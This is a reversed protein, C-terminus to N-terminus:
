TEAGAREKAAKIAAENFEKDKATKDEFSEDDPDEVDSEEAYKDLDAKAGAAPSDEDSAAKPNGDDDLWDNVATGSVAGGTGPLVLTPRDEYAVMMEAAKEKQEENPEPKEEPTNPQSQESDTVQEADKDDKESDQTQESDQASM